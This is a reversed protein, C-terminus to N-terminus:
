RDKARMIRNFKLPEAGCTWGFLLPIQAAPEDVLRRPRFDNRQQATFCAAEDM